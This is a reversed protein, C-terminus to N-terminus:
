TVAAGRYCDRRYAAPTIANCAARRQSGYRNLSGLITGIGEYCRGRFRAPSAACLLTATKGGAYNNGYDRAAGYICDGTNPGAQECLAVTKTPRYESAGSADRGYSEFCTQM